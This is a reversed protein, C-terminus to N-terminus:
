TARRKPVVVREHLGEAKRETRKASTTAEQEKREWDSLWIDDTFHLVLFDLFKRIM